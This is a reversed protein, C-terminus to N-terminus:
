RARRIAEAHIYSIEKLKLAGELALPYNIHRGIYLLSSAKHYRKALERTQADLKLAEALLAPLKQLESVYRGAASADIRGKALGLHLAFVQLAVLQGVFAKTSAVGYEPGCRTHLNYDAARTLASGVCNCIALVKAGKKRALQVAALTDATEGSQSIAAILTGKGLIPERYRFESAAEAEAPVGAFHEVLYKGVLGAHCATGCALLTVREVSKLTGSPLDAEKEFTEETFPHLRGRLTDAATIPQEFIEKLMFHKYGDKEATAHDWLITQPRKDLRAGALSFFSVKDRNLVAMEGDELFVAERTYDIFAPVDSALFNEGKGLGIVLPSSTKAAVLTGPTETWLVAVAYAGRVEALAQRVAEFLLPEKLDPAFASRGSGLTKLKEELLHALVETDTESRFAHGASALRERLELYNEIIGNHIVVLRGECDTHPHANEESPKGHTAWRSHGVGTTGSPPAARAKEELRDLKGVARLIDLGGSGRVCIGASDYGRYELRRLGQMLVPTAEKRGVYGIIGCM